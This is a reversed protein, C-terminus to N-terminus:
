ACALPQTVHSGSEGGAGISQADCIKQGPALTADIWAEWLDALFRKFMVRLADRDRHMDTWDPHTVDCHARRDAYLQGYYGDPKGKGDDTKKAGIWQSDRLPKALMAMYAYREAKFPHETWEDATLVRPRWTPRRYTSLAAGDYPAFGLRSWLKAPNAYNDLPGAEGLITALGLLGAGHINNVWAAVPLKAALKVMEKEADKRIADYPARGESNSRVMLQLALPGEGEAATDLLRKVKANEKKRAVEDDDVHWKTFNRRVYSELARDLKQQLGMAYRREHHKERIALVVTHM